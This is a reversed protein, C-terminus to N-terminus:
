RKLMVNFEQSLRYNLPIKEFTEGVEPVAEEKETFAVVICFRVGDQTKTNGFQARSHFYTAKQRVAEDQVWWLAGKERVRVLVFARKLGKTRARVIVHDLSNVVDHQPRILSVEIRERDDEKQKDSNTKTKPETHKDAPSDPKTAADPADPETGVSSKSPAAANEAHPKASDSESETGGFFDSGLLTDIDLEALVLLSSDAPPDASVGSLGPRVPALPVPDAVSDLLFTEGTILQEIPANLIDFPDFGDPEDFAPIYSQSVFSDPVTPAAVTPPGATADDVTADDAAPVVTASSNVAPDTAPATTGEIVIAGVPLLLLTMAATTWIVNRKM